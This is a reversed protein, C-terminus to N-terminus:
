REALGVGLVFVWFDGRLRLSASVRLFGQSSLLWSVPTLLSFFFLNRAGSPIVLFPLLLFEGRLGRLLLPPCSAFRVKSKM